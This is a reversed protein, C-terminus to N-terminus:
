PSYEFAGIDVAGQLSRPMGDADLSVVPLVLSSGKNIAPSTAQLRFNGTASNVFLPNGLVPTKDLTSAIGGNYYLNNSVTLQSAATGNLMGVYPSKGDSAFINNTIAATPKFLDSNLWIIGSSANINHFTNNFINWAGSYIAIASFDQGVNSLVNGYISGFSGPLTEGVNIGRSDTNSKGTILNDRIRVNEYKFPTDTHVQIVHGMKLDHLHNWAVDVDSAGVQIYIAHNNNIPPTTGTDKLENGYVRWGDNGISVLGTMTNWTYTASIVNNVLRIAKGGSKAVEAGANTNAGGGICQEPCKMTLNAITLYNGVSENSDRLGFTGHGSFSAVEGPYGVFAVPNGATGSKSAGLVFNYDSWGLQGYQGSYTGGRFYFTAGPTIAAYAATPSMPTAYAGNGNGNPAVFYIAGSRVSFPVGNSPVGAANTISINGTQASAGLQMVVKTDSWSLYNDAAGGGITVFATGRTAGFNRGTITVIAGKNNLGGTAPGSDLDTYLIRAVASNSPTPPQVPAPTSSDAPTASTGGGGCAALIVASCILSSILTLRSHITRSSKM